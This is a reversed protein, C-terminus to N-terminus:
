LVCHHFRASLNALFHPWSNIKGFHFIEYLKGMKFGSEGFTNSTSCCSELFDPFFTLPCLVKSQGNITVCLILEHHNLLALQSYEKFMFGIINRCRTNPIYFVCHNPIAYDLSFRQHIFDSETCNKSLLVTIRSCKKRTLLVL